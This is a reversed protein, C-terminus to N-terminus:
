NENVKSQVGYNRIAVFSLVVIKSEIQVLLKKDAVVGRVM